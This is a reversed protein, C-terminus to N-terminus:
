KEEEEIERMEMGGVGENQLVKESTEKVRINRYDGIGKNLIKCVKGKKEGITYIKKVERKKNEYM